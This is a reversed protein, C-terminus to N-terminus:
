KLPNKEQKPELVMVKQIVQIIGKKKVFKSFFLEARAIIIKFHLKPMPLIVKQLDCFVVVSFLCLNESREKKKKIQQLQAPHKEDM